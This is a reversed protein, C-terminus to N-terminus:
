GILRQLDTACNAYAMASSQYFKQGLPDEEREALRFYKAARKEWQTAMDAFLNRPTDSPESADKVANNDPSHIM